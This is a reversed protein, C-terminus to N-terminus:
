PLAKQLEAWAQLGLQEARADPPINAAALAREVEVKSLQLGGALSNRLKKRKESFGARVVRFFAKPDVEFLPQDRRVLTIIQSDVKPSPTFLEAPVEPGLSVESYFQAAVALVSMNGPRAAMREAVEKQVLLAVREPPNASELLLRTIKSTIYYPVNAVVKYNKPLQTLNFRLIDAHHVELNAAPVREPLQAALQPDFEVAFVNKARQTLLKTLTGLGPGIELVTDSPGVAAAECMSELSQADHLWHQGLNKNPRPNNM